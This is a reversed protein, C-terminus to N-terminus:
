PSIGSKRMGQIILWSSNQTAVAGKDPSPWTLTEGFPRAPVNWTTSECVTQYSSQVPLPSNTWRLKNKGKENWGSVCWPTSVMACKRSFPRIVTSNLAKTPGGRIALSNPFPVYCGAWRLRDTGRVVRAREGRGPVTCSNPVGSYRFNSGSFIRLGPDRAAM